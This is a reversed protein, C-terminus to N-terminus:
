AGVENFSVNVGLGLAQNGAAGAVTVVIQFIDGALYAASSVNGTKAVLLTTGVTSDFLLTSSLVTAFAGGGTSKQLDVNVTRDAGTAKTGTIAGQIGGITGANRAIHITKGTEAVVAGANSQQYDHQIQHTLKFAQIGANAAIAADAVSGAPLGITGVPGFILTGQVLAVDGPDIVLTVSM